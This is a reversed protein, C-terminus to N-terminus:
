NRDSYRYGGEGQGGERFHRSVATGSDTSSQTRGEDQTRKTHVIGSDDIIVPNVYLM